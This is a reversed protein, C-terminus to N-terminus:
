LETVSPLSGTDNLFAELNFTAFGWYLPKLFFLTNNTDYLFDPWIYKSNQSLLKVIDLNIDSEWGKKYVDTVEHHCFPWQM